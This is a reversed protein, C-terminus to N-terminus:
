SKTTVIVVNIESRKKWYQEKTVHTKCPCPQISLILEPVSINKYALLQLSFLFAVGM